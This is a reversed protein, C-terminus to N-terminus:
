LNPTGCRCTRCWRGVCGSPPQGAKRYIVVDTFAIGDGFGTGLAKLVAEKAAFRGAVREVKNADDGIQELELETFCRTTLPERPDEIWRRIENIDVLDIGHGIIYTGFAM